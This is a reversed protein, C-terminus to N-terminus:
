YAAGEAKIWGSLHYLTEPEVPVAQVFRADNSAVNQVMACLGTGDRGGERLELYSVGADRLWMDEQWALPRGGPADEFGGNVLLNEEALAGAAGLCLFLVLVAIMVRRM